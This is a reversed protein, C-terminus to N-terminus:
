LKLRKYAMFWYKVRMHALANQNIVDDCQPRPSLAPSRIEGERLVALVFKPAPPTYYPTTQSLSYKTPLPSILM